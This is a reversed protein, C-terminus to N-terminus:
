SARRGHLCSERAACIQNAAPSLCPRHSWRRLGCVRHKRHKDRSAFMDALTHSLCPERQPYQPSSTKESHLHLHSQISIEGTCGLSFIRWREVSAIDDHRGAHHKISHYLEITEEEEKGRSKGSIFDVIADRQPTAAQQEAQPWWARVACDMSGAVVMGCALACLAYVAGGVGTPNM